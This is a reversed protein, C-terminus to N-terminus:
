GLQPSGQLWLGLGLVKEAGQGRVGGKLKRAGRPPLPLEKLRDVTQGWQGRGTASFSVTSIAQLHPGCVKPGLVM